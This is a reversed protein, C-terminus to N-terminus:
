EVADNVRQHVLDTGSETGSLFLPVFISPESVLASYVILTIFQCWWTDLTLSESHECCGGADWGSRM